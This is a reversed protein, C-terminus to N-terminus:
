AYAFMRPHKLAMKSMMDLKYAQGVKSFSQKYAKQLCLLHSLWLPMAFSTKVEMIVEGDDLLPKGELSTELNLDTTRFTGTMEYPFAESTTYSECTHTHFILIDRFNKININPEFMEKTLAYDSENRINVSEYSNTYSEEVNTKIVETAPNQPIEKNVVYNNKEEKKEIISENANAVEYGSTPLEISLIKGLIYVDDKKIEVEKLGPICIDLCTLFSYNILKPEASDNQNGVKKGIIAIFIAIIILIFTVKIFFKGLEKINIVAVNFM